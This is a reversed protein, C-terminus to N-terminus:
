SSPRALAELTPSRTRDRAARRPLRLPGGRVASALVRLWGRRHVGLVRRGEVLVAGAEESAAGSAGVAHAWLLSVALVLWVREAREPATIRLRECRLGGGKACRFGQEIWSRLGYFPRACASVSLDTMLLWPADAGVRWVAVLTCAFPRTAFLHGRGVYHAGPRVVDGLRVWAGGRERWRGLRTLRIVPHWGRAVIDAFLATSQLGRDAVVVVRTRRPIAPALAALLPKWHPMWAGPAEAAVVAWAVPVACGHTVLAVTLVALRDRCVTPDLALVIERPRLLWLAWALLPAFSATVDLDTRGRGRKAPAPRYLDRLRQRLPDEPAGTAEALFAACTSSGVHETLTAAYSWLALTRRHPRSLHPLHRALHDAWRTIQAHPREATM